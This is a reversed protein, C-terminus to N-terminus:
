YRGEGGGGGAGGETIARWLQRGYYGGAGLGVAWPLVKGIRRKAIRRGTFKQTDKIIQAAKPWQKAFQEFFLQTRREAEPKFLGKLGGSRTNGEPDYIIKAIANRMDMFEAYSKNLKQLDPNDKALLKNLNYYVYKITGQTTDGIARGSWVNDPVAKRLFQKIEQIDSVTLIDKERIRKAINEPLNALTEYVDGTNVRKEGIKKFVDDYQNSLNKYLDDLGESATNARKLLYDKGMVKPFKGKVFQEAKNLSGTLMRNVLPDILKVSTLLGISTSAWEPYGARRPIDGLEIRREGRLGRMSEKGLEGLFQLRKLPTEREEATTEQLKALPAAVGAELRQRPIGLVKLGTILPSVAKGIVGGRKEALPTMVEQMLIDEARPREAILRETRKFGPLFSPRAEETIDALLDRPKRKVAIPEEWQGTLLDKPM